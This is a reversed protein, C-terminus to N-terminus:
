FFEIFVTDKKFRKLKNENIIDNELVSDRFCLFYSCLYYFFVVNNPTPTLLWSVLGGFGIQGLGVRWTPYTKLPDPQIRTVVIVFEGLIVWGM